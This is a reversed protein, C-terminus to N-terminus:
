EPLPTFLFDFSGPEARLCTELVKAYLKLKRYTKEYDTPFFSQNLLFTLMAVIMEASEPPTETYVSGDQVGELLLQELIPSVTQIATIMMKCHILMNDQVHLSLIVNKQSDQFEKCVMSRFLMQVKELTTDCNATITFYEQIASTYSREIVADVIDDKSEFYYYISGKGIGANKAIMDVTIERNPEDMSCMLEEASDLIIDIKSNREYM